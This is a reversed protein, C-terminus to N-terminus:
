CHGAARRPHIQGKLDRHATLGLPALRTAARDQTEKTGAIVVHLANPRVDRFPLEVGRFLAPGALALPFSGRWVPTSLRTM